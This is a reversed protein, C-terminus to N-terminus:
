SCLDIFESDMNVIITEKERFDPLEETKKGFIQSFEHFLENLQHEKQYLNM